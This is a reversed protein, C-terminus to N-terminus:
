SGRRLAGAPIWSRATLSGAAPATQGQDPDNSATLQCCTGPRAAGRKGCRTKMACPIMAPRAPAFPALRTQAEIAQADPLQTGAALIGLDELRRMQPLVRSDLSGVLDNYAKVATTLSRGTKHLHQM